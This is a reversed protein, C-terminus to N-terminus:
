SENIDRRIQAGYSSNFFLKVLGQLLDNKKDKYKQRSDFLKDIVIRFPSIKFNEPCIVGEYNEIVKGGLEFIEPSDVSTLIDRIYGNRMGNVEINKNKEKVPLQQFILDRPNYYKIILIATEDGDQNFTQNNFAEVFVDKM